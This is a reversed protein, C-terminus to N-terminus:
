NDNGHDEADGDDDDNVIFGDMDDDEEEDEEAEEDMYQDEDGEQEQEEPEPENFTAAFRGSGSDARPYGLEASAIEPYTPGTWFQHALEQNAGYWNNDADDYIGQIINCIVFDQIYADPRAFNAKDEPTLDSSEDIIYDYDYRNNTPLMCFSRIHELMRLRGEHSSVEGEDLLRVAVKRPYSDKTNTQFENNEVGVRRRCVVVFGMEKWSPDDDIATFFHHMFADNNGDM